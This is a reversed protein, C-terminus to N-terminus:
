LLWMCRCLNVSAHQFIFRVKQLLLSPYILWKRNQWTLCSYWYYANQPPVSRIKMSSHVLGAKEGNKWVFCLWSLCRYPKYKICWWKLFKIYWGKLFTVPVHFCVLPGLVVFLPPPQPPQPPTSGVPPLIVVWSDTTPLCSYQSSSPPLHPPPPLYLSLAVLRSVYCQHHLIVIWSTDTALLSSYQPTPTSCIPPPPAPRPLSFSLCLCLAVPVWLVPPLIVLQSSDTTPLSLYQPLLPPPRLCCGPHPPPPSPLPLLLSFSVSVSLLRSVYCQFCFWLGHHTLQLSSYQPQPPPPPLPSFPSFSIPPPPSLSLSCGPCMLSTPCSWLGHHALQLYPHISSFPFPPPPPLFCGPCMVSNALDCGMIRWNHTLVLIDHQAATFIQEM